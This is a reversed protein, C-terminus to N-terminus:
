TDLISYFGNHSLNPNQKLLYIKKNLLLGLDTLTLEIGFYSLTGGQLKAEANGSEFISRRKAHNRSRSSEVVKRGPTSFFRARHCEQVCMRVFSSFRRRSLRRRRSGAAVM